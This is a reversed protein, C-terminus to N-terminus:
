TSFLGAFGMFAMSLIGAIILNFATGRILTPVDALESEERLGAMLLLALTFGGGAGLAFVVSELFSYERNTAFIALGLIACNTTILPLFIGLSRFLSPSLKKILMEIFQVVSAIVVIFSILRLYPAHPLIYTNLIWACIATIILVFTTALGLRASTELKGSVGLFPCLGLFYALVFNNVLLASIFIWLFHQLAPDSM